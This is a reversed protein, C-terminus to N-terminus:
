RSPELDYIRRPFPDSSEGEEELTWRVRRPNSLNRYEAERPWWREEGWQVHIRQIVRSGSRDEVRVLRGSELYFLRRRGEPIQYVLVVGEESEFGEAAPSSGPRFMGAMAYLFAPEPLDLEEIGGLTSLNGETLAVAM